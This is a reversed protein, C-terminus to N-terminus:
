IKVYTHLLSVLIILTKRTNSPINGSSGPDEGPGGESGGRRDNSIRGLKKGEEGASEM